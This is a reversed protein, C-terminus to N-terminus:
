GVCLWVWVKSYASSYGLGKLVEHFHERPGGNLDGCVVIAAADKKHPEM